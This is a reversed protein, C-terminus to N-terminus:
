EVLEPLQYEGDAVRVFFKGAIQRIKERWFPNETPRKTELCTYIQKLTARGGCVILADQVVDRWINPRCGNGIFMARYRKQLSRVADVEQYLIFGALICRRTKSFKAFTLCEQLRQFLDRPVMQTSISWRRSLTMVRASTQFYYAPLLFAASQDYDLLEYCRALMGEIFDSKYPPNGIIHTPRQAFSLSLFDGTLVTRGSNARAEAAIDSDLEIGFAEIEGPTAMLFRGDGCAPDLLCHGPALDPFANRILLECAWAPTFYQGRSPERASLSFEEDSM